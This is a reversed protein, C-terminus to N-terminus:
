FTYKIFSCIHKYKRVLNWTELMIRVLKLSSPTIKCWEEGVEFRVGLFGVWILTLVHKCWWLSNNYKLENRSRPGNINYRHSRNKMKMNM